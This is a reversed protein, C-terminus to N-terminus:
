WETEWVKSVGNKGGQVTVRLYQYEEVERIGGDQRGGTWKTGQVTVRLYQYEEVERIETGACIWKRKQVTGNICVVKCKRERVKMGYVAICDAIEDM